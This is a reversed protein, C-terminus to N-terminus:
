KSGSNSSTSSRRNMKEDMKGNSSSIGNAEHHPKPNKSSAVPLCQHNSPLNLIHEKAEDYTLTEQSSSNEVVNDRSDAFWALLFDRFTV